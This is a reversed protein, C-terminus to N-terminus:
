NFDRNTDFTFVPKGRTNMEYQIWVPMACDEACAKVLLAEDETAMRCGCRWVVPGDDAMSIQYKWINELAHRADDDAVLEELEEPTPPRLTLDDKYFAVTGCRGCIAM